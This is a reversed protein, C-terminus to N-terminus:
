KIEEYEVEDGGPVSSQRPYHVVDPHDATEHTQRWRKLERRQYQYQEILRLLLRLGKFALYFLVLFWLLRLM